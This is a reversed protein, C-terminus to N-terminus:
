KHDLGEGITDVIVRGDEEEHCFGRWGRKDPWLDFEHTSPPIPDGALKRYRCSNLSDKRGTELYRSLKDMAQNLMTMRGRDKEKLNEAEDRVKKSYSLLPSLPPLLTREYEEERTAGWIIGGWESLNCRDGVIHLLTEPIGACEDLPVDGLLMKRFTASRERVAQKASAELDVPMRPISLLERSTEFIYVTEDAYFMGLTQMYGHLAKFGGVLNFVIKYGSARYGPLTGVCWKILEDIGLRFEELSSTNLDDIRIPLMTIGHAEGWDRLIEAVIQGQWTDTHILFHIDEEADTLRGGDRLYYGIFGNLEASVKRIEENDYRIFADGREKVIALLRERDDPSYSTERENAKSYLFAKGEQDLRHALISTGCTTM